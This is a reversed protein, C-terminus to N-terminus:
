HTPPAFVSTNITMPKSHQKGCNINLCKIDFSMVTYRKLLTPRIVCAQVCVSQSRNRRTSVKYSTWIRSWIKWFLQLFQVYGVYACFNWFHYSDFLLFLSCFTLSNANSNANCREAGHFNIQSEGGNVILAGEESRVRHYEGLYFLHSCIRETWIEFM